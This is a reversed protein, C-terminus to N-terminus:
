ELFFLWLWIVVVVVLISLDYNGVVQVVFDQQCDVKYQECDKVVNGVEVGIM